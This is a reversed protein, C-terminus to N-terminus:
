GGFQPNELISSNTVSSQTEALPIQGLKPCKTYLHEQVLVICKNERFNYCNHNIALLVEHRGIRETIVCTILCIKNIVRIIVSQIPSWETGNGDDIRSLKTKCMNFISLFM